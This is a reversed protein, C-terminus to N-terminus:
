GETLGWSFTFVKTERNFEFTVEKELSERLLFSNNAKNVIFKRTVRNTLFGKQPRNEFIFLIASNVVALGREDSKDLFFFFIKFTSRYANTVFTIKYFFEEFKFRM